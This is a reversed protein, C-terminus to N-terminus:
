KKRQSEEAELTAAEWEEMLSELEQNVQRHAASAQNIEVTKNAAAFTAMQQELEQKRTELDAIKKELEAV